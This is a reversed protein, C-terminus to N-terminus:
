INDSDNEWEIPNNKIYERINWLQEENRMIVDYFSKQWSFEYNKYENQIRSTIKGKLWRIMKSLTPFSRMTGTNTDNVSFSRMTGNENIFNNLPAICDCGVNSNDTIIVIIHIHNPMIVYSDIEINGRFNNQIEEQAIRWLDNLVMEWNEIEWFFHERNKCCITVFYYWAESYDYNKLRLNKRQPWSYM